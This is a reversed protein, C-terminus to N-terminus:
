AQASKAQRGKIGTRRFTLVAILIVFVIATRWESSLKWAVFNQVFGIFVGGVVAAGMNGLGGLVVAVVAVLLADFGLTPRMDSNLAVLVAGVCAIASGAAFAVAIHKDTDIGVIASLERDGGIARMLTGLQTQAFAVCTWVVVVASVLIIAIQIGTIRAGCLLWGPQISGIGYSKTEDGFFLSVCNQLVIMIGLSAVLLVLSSAGRKRLTKYIIAEISFGLLGAVLIAMSVAAVFPVNVKVAFLYAAYAGVTFIAGHAFHFFRATNFIIAFSIALVAYIAGSVCSNILVQIM